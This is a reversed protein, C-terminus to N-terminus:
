CRLGTAVRTHVEAVALEIATWSTGGITAEALAKTFEELALFAFAVADM